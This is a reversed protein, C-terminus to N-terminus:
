GSRWRLHPAIWGTMLRSEADGCGPGSPTVAGNSLCQSNDMLDLHMGHMHWHQRQQQATSCYQVHQCRHRDRHVRVAIGEHRRQLYRGHHQLSMALCAPPPLYLASPLGSPALLNRPLALGIPLPVHVTYRPQQPPCIQLSAKSVCSAHLSDSSPARAKDFSKGNSIDCRASNCWLWLRVQLDVQLITPYRSHWASQLARAAIIRQTTQRGAM